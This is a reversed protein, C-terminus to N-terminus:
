IKIKSFIRNWWKSNTPLNEVLLIVGNDKYAEIVSSYKKEKLVKASKKTYTEPWEWPYLRRDKKPIKWNKARITYLSCSKTLISKYRTPVVVMWKPNERIKKCRATDRDLKKIKEPDKVIRGWLKFLDDDQCWKPDDEDLSMYFGIDTGIFINQIDKRWEICFMSAFTKDWSSWITKMHAKRVADVWSEPDIVKLNQIGSGHYMVTNNSVVTKRENLYKLYNNITSM